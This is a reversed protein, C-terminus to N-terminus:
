DIQQIATPMTVFVANTDIGKFLDIAQRITPALTNDASFAWGGDAAPRVIGGVNGEENAYYGQSLGLYLVEVQIKDRTTTHLTFTKNFKDIEHLLGLVAMTRNTLPPPNGDESRLQNIFTQINQQEKFFNPLYPIAAKLRSEFGPLANEVVSLSQELEEERVSLNRRGEQDITLNEEAERIEAQLQEKREELLEIQNALIDTQRALREREKSILQRTEVYKALAARTQEIEMQTQSQDGNSQALAANGVLLLATVAAIISWIGNKM